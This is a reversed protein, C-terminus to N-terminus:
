RRRAGLAMAALAGAIAAAIDDTGGATGHPDALFHWTAWGWAAGFAFRIVPSRLIAWVHASATDGKGPTRLAIAEVVVFALGIAAWAWTFIRRLRPYSM